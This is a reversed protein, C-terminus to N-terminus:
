LKIEELLQQQYQIREDPTLAEHFDYQEQTLYEEYTHACCPVCHMVCKGKIHCMCMCLVKEKIVM